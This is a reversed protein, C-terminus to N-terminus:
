RSPCTTAVLPSFAMTTLWFASQSPPLVPFTIVLPFRPFPYTYCFAHFGHRVVACRWDKGKEPFFPECECCCVSFIVKQTKSSEQRRAEPNHDGDPPLRGAAM